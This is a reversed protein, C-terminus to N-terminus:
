KTAPGPTNFYPNLCTNDCWATAPGGIEANSTLPLGTQAFSALNKNDITVAPMELVNYKPGKNDLVRLAVNMYTYSGQFGNFCGAYTKYKSKNQLWWSLDGGYCEGDAVTPPTLGKAQFASVVGAFMGGDQIAGAIPQPNAALYQSVVSKATGEDWQGYLTAAVHINPCNKLDAIAQNYLLVDNENGAIGKVMLINGRKILGIAGADAEVQNQSWAAVAYKSGPAPPTDALIVPVGAKGAAEMAPTESVSDVPLLIIANVGQRVMQQIAAIQEEPTSQAATAPINTVLSGTVLGAKKAIAFQRKLGTVVDANYQNTVAFAIYGIKWPPKAKIKKTAWPSKYLAGPYSSYISKLASPMTAYVGNPNSPGVPVTDGCAKGQKIGGGLARTSSASSGGAAVLLATVVALAIVVASRGRRAGSGAVVASM